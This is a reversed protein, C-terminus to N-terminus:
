LLQQLLFPNFYDAEAHHIFVIVIFVVQFFKEDETPIHLYGYHRGLRLPLIQVPEVLQRFFIFDFHANMAMGFRGAVVPM